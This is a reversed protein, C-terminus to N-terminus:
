RADQQGLGEAPPLDKLSRLGFLQLFKRTTEYLAPRGLSDDRGALRVLGKEMLQTLVPGCGVGRIAEVDARTIPQRYAVITLTERAAPSLQTEPAHRRLRSLWPHFEPRTLLQYGGALEEVAFATGDAAYLGRLRAALRRAAAADALGALAALRRATLPEDALFLAAEVRALEPERALEGQPAGGPGDGEPPLRLGARPRRNGPLRPRQLAAAPPTALPHRLM